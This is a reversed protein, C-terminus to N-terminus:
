KEMILYIKDKNFDLKQNKSLRDFENVYEKNQQWNDLITAKKFYKTAAKLIDNKDLYTIKYSTITQRSNVATKFHVGIVDGSVPYEVTGDAIMQGNISYFANTTESKLGRPYLNPNAAFIAKKSMKKALLKFFKDLDDVYNFTYEMFVFDLTEDIRTNLWTLWDQQYIEVTDLYKKPLYEKAFKIMFPSHDVWSIKGARASLYDFLDGLEDICAGAGLNAIMISKAENKKLHTLAISQFIRTTGIHERNNEYDRQRAIIREVYELNFYMKQESKIKDSTSM